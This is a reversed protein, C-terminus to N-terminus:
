TTLASPSSVPEDDVLLDVVRLDTGDTPQLRVGGCVPCADTRSRIAVSQNCGLCWATASPEDIEIRAGALCTGPTIAELAFRLARVEVGSLAGAALRLVRVQSFRERAAADEVLRVIGGALSLEHM